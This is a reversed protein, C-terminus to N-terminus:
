HHFPTRSVVPIQIKSSAIAQSIEAWTDMNEGVTRFGMLLDFMSYLDNTSYNGTRALDLIACVVPYKITAKM